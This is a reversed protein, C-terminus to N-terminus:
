YAGTQFSVCILQTECAQSAAILTSKEWIESYKASAGRHDEVGLTKPGRGAQKGVLGLDWSSSSSCGGWAETSQVGAASAGKTPQQMRPTSQEIEDGEVDAVGDAGEFRPFHLLTLLLLLLPLPFLITPMLM